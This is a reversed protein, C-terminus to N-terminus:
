RYKEIQKRTNEFKELMELESDNKFYETGQNSIEGKAIIYLTEIDIVMYTSTTFFEGFEHDKEPLVKVMSELLYAPKYLDCNFNSLSVSDNETIIEIQSLRPHDYTAHCGEKEIKPVLVIEFSYYDEPLFKEKKLTFKGGLLSMSDKLEISYLKCIENLIKYQHDFSKFNSIENKDLCFNFTSAFTSTDHIKLSSVGQGISLLPIFLFLFNTFCRM